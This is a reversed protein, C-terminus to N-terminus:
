SQFYLSSLSSGRPFVLRNRQLSPTNAERSDPSVRREIDWLLHLEFAHINGRSNESYRPQNMRRGSLGRRSRGMDRCSGEDCVTVGLGLSNPDQVM